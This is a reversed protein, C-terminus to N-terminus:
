VHSVNKTQPLSFTKQQPLQQKTKLHYVYVWTEDGTVTNKKNNAEACELM